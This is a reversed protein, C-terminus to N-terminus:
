WIRYRPNLKILAASDLDLGNLFIKAEEVLRNLRACEATLCVEKPNVPGRAFRRPGRVAANSAACAAYADDIEKSFRKATELIKPDIGVGGPIYPTSNDFINTGSTDSQNPPIAIAPAVTIAGMVITIAIAWSSCKRAHM